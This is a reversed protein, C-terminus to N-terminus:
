RRFVGREETRRALLHQAYRWVVPSQLAGSALAFAKHAARGRLEHSVQVGQHYDVERPNWRTKSLDRGSGLNATRYRAGIAYKLAEVLTTTMISYRAYEPDYGSYYLYLCDSAALGIRTAVVRGDIRLRFVFAEGRDALRECVDVLFASGRADQFLDPHWVTGTLAARRSHLHFFDQLAPRMEERRTAVDFTFGLGDRKLSNYCKRISEKINRSLRNRLEEWSGPLDLVYCPTHSTLRVDDRASPRTLAAHADGDTVGSWAIWDWEGTRKAADELLADYCAREMGPQCLLGRVETWNPDAGIFQLCRTRLPGIAPRTTLMLPAIGLLAGDEGRLTRISLADNVALSQERVHNWWSRAWAASRFPLTNGSSRELARWEPELAM